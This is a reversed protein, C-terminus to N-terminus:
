SSIENYSEYNDENKLKPERLVQTCREAIDILTAKIFPSVLGPNAGHCVICTPCRNKWEKTEERLTSYEYYLIRKEHDKIV